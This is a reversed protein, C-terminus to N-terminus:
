QVGLKEAAERTAALHHELGPLVDEVLKKFEANHIAPLLKGKVSDIVSQHFNVQHRLYAKDFAPGSKGQLVSVTQAQEAASTDNDPPTPTVGLRSALARSMQQVAEHDAATMRGLERVEKSHGYKAGLRGTYIDASNAHDFIAFITADDLTAPSAANANVSLPLMALGAIVFLVRHKM